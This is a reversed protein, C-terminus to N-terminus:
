PCKAQQSTKESTSEPVKHTSAINPYRWKPFAELLLPLAVLPAQLGGRRALYFAQLCRDGRM